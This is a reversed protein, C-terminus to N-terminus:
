ASECRALALTRRAELCDSVRRGHLIELGSLSLRKKAAKNVQSQLTETDSVRSAQLKTKAIGEFRSAHNPRRMPPLSAASSAPSSLIASRNRARSSWIMLMLCQSEFESIDDCIIGKFLRVSKRSRASNQGRLSNANSSRRLSVRSPSRVGPCSCARMCDQKRDFDRWEELGRPLRTLDNRSEKPCAHCGGSALHRVRSCCARWRPSRAGAGRRPSFRGITKRRGLPRWTTPVCRLEPLHEDVREGPFTALCASFIVVCLTRVGGLYMWTKRSAGKIPDDDSRLRVWFYWIVALDIALCIIHSRTLCWEAHPIFTGWECGGAAHGLLGWHSGRVYSLM